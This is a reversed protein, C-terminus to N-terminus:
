RPSRQYGGRNGYQAIRSYILTALVCTTVPIILEVKPHWFHLAIAVLAIVMLAAINLAVGVMLCEPWKAGTTIRYALGGPGLIIGGFAAFAQIPQGISLLPAAIALVALVASATVITVETQHDSM